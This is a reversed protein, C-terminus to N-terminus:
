KHKHMEAKPSAEFSQILDSNIQSYRFVAGGGTKILKTAQEHDSFPIFEKGMPGAIKNGAVYFADEAKLWTANLFDRVYIVAIDSRSYEKEYKGMDFLYKFLDKAGDFARFDGSNFIIQTQWKAFRAPYM